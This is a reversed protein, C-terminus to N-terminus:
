ELAQRVHKPERPEEFEGKKLAEDMKQASRCIIRCAQQLMIPDVKDLSDQPSHAYKGAMTSAFDIGNYGYKNFPMRDTHAGTPLNFTDIEIKLENASERIFKMMLPDVPKKILGNFECISLKNKETPGVMDLNFDFTRDVKFHRLRRLLFNRCGMQGFEEVGFQCFWLNFRELPHDKFYRALEFVVAMGTANDLSGPSENGNRNFSLIIVFLIVTGAMISSIIKVPVNIDGINFLDIIIGAIFIIFLFGFIIFADRFLKVRVVTTISQSKSDSHASIVVNGYNREIETPTHGYDKENNVSNEHNEEFEIDLEEFAGFEGHVALNGEEGYSSGPVFAFINSSEYNRGWNLKNPNRTRRFIFTGYIIITALVYINLVPKYLLVLQMIAVMGMFNVLVFRLLWESYFLSCVFSENQPNLDMAKFEEFAMIRSKKEGVSGIKRPFSFKEVLKMLINKDFEPPIEINNKSESNEEPSTEM